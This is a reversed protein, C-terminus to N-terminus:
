VTEMGTVVRLRVVVETVVATAVAVLAVATKVAQMAQDMPLKALFKAGEIGGMVHGLNSAIKSV